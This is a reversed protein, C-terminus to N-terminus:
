EDKAVVFVCFPHGDPDSFVLLPEEASDSRDFRLQGGLDLVRSKTSMLEDFDGVSLDLHLQQPVSADPWTSRPMEEVYQFALCPVGAPTLLNLWDRGAPDDGTIPPEHGPRYRLALFSRWFEASVRPNTSDFVVQVIHPLAPSEM